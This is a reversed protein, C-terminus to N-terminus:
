EIMIRFDRKNNNSSFIIIITNKNINKKILNIGKIKNNIKKMKNIMEGDQNLYLNNNNNMYKEEPIM